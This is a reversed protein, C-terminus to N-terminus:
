LLGGLSLANRCHNKDNIVGESEQTVLPFVLCIFGNHVTRYHYILSSQMLPIM